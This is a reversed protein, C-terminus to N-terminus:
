EEGRVAALIAKYTLAKKMADVDELTIDAAVSHISTYQNDPNKSVQKRLDATVKAGTQYVMLAFAEQRDRKTRANGANYRAAVKRYKTRLVKTHAFAANLAGAHTLQYVINQVAEFWWRGQKALAFASAILLPAFGLAFVQEALPQAIDKNFGSILSSVIPTEVGWDGSVSPAIGQNMASFLLASAGAIFMVAFRPAWRGLLEMLRSNDKNISSLEIVFASMIIGALITNSGFVSSTQEGPLPEFFMAGVAGSYEMDLLICFAIGLTTGAIVMLNKGYVGISSLRHKGAKISLGRADAPSQIEPPIVKPLTKTPSNKM